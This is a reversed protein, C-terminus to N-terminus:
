LSAFFDDLNEETSIKPDDTRTLESQQTTLRKQEIDTKKNYSMDAPEVGITSGCPLEAGNM